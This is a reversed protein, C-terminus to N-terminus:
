VVSSEDTLCIIEADLFREFLQLAAPIVEEALAELFSGLRVSTAFAMLLRVHAVNPLAVQIGIVNSEVVFGQTRPSIQIHKSLIFSKSILASIDGLPESGGDGSGSFSTM